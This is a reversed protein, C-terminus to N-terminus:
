GRALALRAGLAILVGGCIRQLWRGVPGSRLSRGMRAGALALVLCWCAGTFVFTLSLLLVGLRPRAAAPDVFQPIFALFFLAVKPNLLNTLMGQRFAPWSGRGRRVVDEAAARSDWIMRAGLYALYAAGALKHVLFATPSARLILSVGTVAALTHGLSGASIGFVSAIGVARGEAGSRSLIYFTDPGPTLNLLVGALVFAGFHTVGLDDLSM